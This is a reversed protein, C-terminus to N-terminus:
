GAVAGGWAAFASALRHAAATDPVGLARASAPHVLRSNAQLRHLARRRAQLVRAREEATLLPAVWADIDHALAAHGVEDPAIASMASRVADDEANAAQHLAILASWCEGVCGEVANHVAFEVLSTPRRARPRAGLPADPALTRMALTHAAEEVAAVQARDVLGPPAGLAQLARALERFAVISDREARAARAAWETVGSPARKARTRRALPARGECFVVQTGECEVDLSGDEARDGALCADVTEFGGMETCARICADDADPSDALYADWTPGDVYVSSTADIEGGECGCVSSMCFPPSDCAALLALLTLGLPTRM